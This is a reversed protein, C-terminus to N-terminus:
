KRIDFWHYTGDAHRYGVQNNQKKLGVELALGIARDCPKKRCERMFLALYLAMSRLNACPKARYHKELKHLLVMQEFDDTYKEYRSRLIMSNTPSVRYALIINLFNDM